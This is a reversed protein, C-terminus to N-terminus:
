HKELLYMCDVLEPQALYPYHEIQAPKLEPHRQCFLAAFDAKWLLNEHGRYNVDQLGPAYYEFGWIYRRSCRTMENMVREHDHPAIHILVGSTFVLDFEDKEFTIDFANGQVINIGPRVHRAIEVAYNQLEIGHLNMFGLQQLLHLQTGVNAGVELIRAKRDLHSLFRINMETRSKGYTKLYLRNMDSPTAANRDTYERGFSGSWISAQPTRTRTESM